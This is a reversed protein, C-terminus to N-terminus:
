DEDETRRAESLASAMLGTPVAVVGLGIMLIVFTFIKGGVTVPYTDGYGVTTLSTVAWWMGHFVSAFAEPQADREFYYIGVASVYFLLLAVTFFLLLEDKIMSFARGYLRVAKSYRAFKLARFVRIFRLVRISRLDVGTSIYFPLIAVLDVLGFFSFVFRLRNEAVLLRLLYEITFVIVTVVEITRLVRRTESSLDPLTEISFSVLSILILLQVIADFVRGAETDREQVIARLDNLNM